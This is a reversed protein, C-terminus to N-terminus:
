TAVPPRYPYLISVVHAPPYGYGWQSNVDHHDKDWYIQDLWLLTAVQVPYPVGEPEGNSDTYVDGASDTFDECGQDIYNLVAQSVGYLITMIRSENQPYYDRLHAQAQALTVLLNM